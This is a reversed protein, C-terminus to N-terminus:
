KKARRQARNPSFKKFREDMEENTKKIEEGAQDLFKALILNCKTLNTKGEFVKHATGEGFVADFFNFIGECRIRIIQSWTAGEPIDVEDIKKSSKEIREVQDADYADFELEVGNIKIM